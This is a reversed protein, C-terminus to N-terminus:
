GEKRNKYEIIMTTQNIDDYRTLEIKKVLSHIIQMGYGGFKGDTAESKVPDKAPMSWAIGKDWFTLKIEDSIVLEVGIIEDRAENLGHRIINTLYENMILEVGNTCSEIKIVDKVVTAFKQGIEGVNELLSKLTFVNRYKTNKAQTIKKFSLLTFDDTSIDYHLDELKQKFKGPLSICSDFDTQDQIFKQFGKMGFQEGKTNECEFIGDTYLMYVKNDEFAVVGEDEEEYDMSERWGIPISGGEDILDAKQTKVDYCLMAPHGANFYRIERKETDVISLLMTLYNDHFLDAAIIKNLCHLIYSPTLDEEKSSVIMNIISKVATMMLAAQVGHGSIDGIYVISKTESIEIIDFLDGGIMSSPKYASSYVIGNKETLWDPLLYRQVSAAIKLEKLLSNYMENLSDENSQRNIAAGISDAVMTLTEVEVGTWIHKLRINDFGLFGWFIDKVFIPVTLISKVKNLYLFDTKIDMEEMIGYVPKRQSLKKEWASFGLEEYSYDEELDVKISYQTSLESQWGNSFHMKISGDDNQVNEFLYVRDVDLVEGYKQLIKNMYEKWNSKTLFANSSVSLARMIQDRKELNQEAIKRQTIDEIVGDYYIISKNKTIAKSNIGIWFKDGNKKKVEAEYSHIDGEKSMKEIFDERLNPKKYFKKVNISKMEEQSDYGFMKVMAPNVSLLHGAKTSRYIGVPINVQLTRYKKESRALKDEAIKRQTIDEFSIIAGYLNENRLFDLSFLIKKIEGSKIVLDGEKEFFINSEETKSFVVDFLNSHFLNNSQKGIADMFDYGTIEEAKNNWSTIRNNLDVSFIASPVLQNISEAFNKSRTFENLVTKMQTQNDQVDLFMQQFKKTSSLRLYNAIFSLYYALFLLIIPVNNQSIQLIFLDAITTIVMFSSILIFWKFSLLFIGMGILLILINIIWIVDNMYNMYSLANAFVLLLIITVVKFIFRQPLKQYIISIMVALSFILTFGNLLIISVSFGDKSFYFQAIIFISFLIVIGLCLSRVNQYFMSQTRLHVEREQLSQMNREKDVM